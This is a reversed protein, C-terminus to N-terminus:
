KLIDSLKIVRAEGTRLNSVHVEESINNLIANYDTENHYGDRLKSFGIHYGKLFPTAINNSRQMALSDQLTKFDPNYCKKFFSKTYSILQGGIPVMYNDITKDYIWGLRTKTKFDAWGTYWGYFQNDQISSWGVYDVLDNKELFQYPWIPYLSKVADSLIFDDEGSIVKDLNFWQMIINSACFGANEKVYFVEINAYKKQFELATGLVEKTPDNLVLCVKVEPCNKLSDILGLVTLRFYIERDHTGIAIVPTLSPKKYYILREDMLFVSKSDLYRLHDRYVQCARPYFSVIHTNSFLTFNGLSLCSLNKNEDHFKIINNLNIYRIYINPFFLHIKDQDLKSYNDMLNDLSSFEIVEIIGYSALESYLDNKTSNNEFSDTLVIAKCIDKNESTNIIVHKM